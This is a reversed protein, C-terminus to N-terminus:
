GATRSAAPRTRARGSSGSEVGLRESLRPARLLPTLGRRALRGTDRGVAAPRPLARRAPRDRPACSPMRTPASRRPSRSRSSRRRSARRAVGRAHRHALAGRRRGPAPRAARDVRAARRAAARDARARRPPRRRRGPPLVALALEGSPCRALERWCADNQLFGTGTTGIVSVMDAVVASATEIGARARARRAHDRPDRRGPAHGRQVRGRGRRAPSPPRRAGAARPRRGERRRADGLRRAPRGDGLERRRARPRSSRARDREDRRRRADVRSGFAVTALIAMKAAADAGSVDDTPDAEAFGLRQAEALAETTSAGREM